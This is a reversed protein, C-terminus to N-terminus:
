HHLAYSWLNGCTKPTLATNDFHPLVTVRGNTLHTPDGAAAAAARESLHRLATAPGQEIATPWRTARQQVLAAARQYLLHLQTRGQAPDDHWAAVREVFGTVARDRRRIVADPDPNEAPGTDALATYTEPDALDEDPFAFVVDGEENLRGNEMIVLIELPDASNVLRHVTGPTFQVAVGPQLGVSHPGQDTLFEAHGQGRLTFYLETCTLHLHPTGGCHGDPAQSTYVRVQSLGIGAPLGTTASM